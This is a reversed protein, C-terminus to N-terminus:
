DKAHDLLAALAKDQIGRQKLSNFTEKAYDLTTGYRGKANQFIQRYQEPSLDGTFSPSNRPLTFALATVPGKPTPCQLWRPTYVSNPMERFWLQEITQKLQAAPTRFVVGHCSGGSLLAFVLGPCDPTGRNLRSWMKLARHWGQVRTLHSELVEFEPRWILSAYGFV